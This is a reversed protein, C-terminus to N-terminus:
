LVLLFPIHFFSTCARKAWDTTPLLGSTPRCVTHVEAKANDDDAIYRSCHAILTPFLPNAGLDCTLQLPKHLFRAQTATLDLNDGELSAHEQLRRRLRWSVTVQM